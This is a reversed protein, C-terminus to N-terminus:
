EEGQGAQRDRLALVLNIEGYTYGEGLAAKLEGLPLVGTEDIRARLHRLREEDIVATAELEGRKVYWALHGLVTQETLEREVAIEEVSRGRRLLELSIKKTNTRSLGKRPAGTPGIAGPPPLDVTDIKNRSRYDAVLAVLEDGYRDLLRPGIGKIHRLEEMTPPLHVAIQVLTKQHLVQFPPLGDARSRAARWERLREYLEPHGVDAETYTVAAKRVRKEAEMGAASVARLYDRPSFGTGCALVGARKVLCEQRAQRIAETIRRAVERNDSEVAMDELCPVLITDFQEGFYGAASTLREGIVPDAAPLTDPNFLSRLQNSFREGVRCITEGVRLRVEALDAGGSLRIIAAHSRALGFLRGLLNELRGFDFCALLLRQQTRIRAAQLAAEDPKREALAANFALVAPDTRVAQPPIPARLLLGEFTRCRSLAVYVQGFAFAAEADIMARDFTLGQSKHITIAWAPRLPYQSFSGVVKRTIETTEPDVTYSVNEWEVREVLIREDEGPCRVEVGHASIQTITGIKGNYWRKEAATDNRVFLVQAGEKLELEAATPFAYEPFDGDISATFRHRAGPLADLRARNVADARSNHTCLTICGEDPVFDPAYRSNLEELTAADVRGSRIRNLLDVFHDDAQRYVRLLEVPVVNTRQLAISAFFWPSAYHARLLQWEPERVVPALQHLDGIMLLQVGGFPQDNGRYRRLVADVGDLLDARVMSIEDIVLLDLSRVINRKDRSFRHRAFFSTDGPVMPGFPLQFFSHLTVGGANIAAVGTPATVILRKSTRGALEQLFTTKGTGAKGTLFVPCDTEEVFAEALRLEPNTEHM